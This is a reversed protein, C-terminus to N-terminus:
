LMTFLSAVKGLKGVTVGKVHQVSKMRDHVGAM